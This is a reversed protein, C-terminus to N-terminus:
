WYVKRKERGVKGDIFYDGEARDESYKRFVFYEAM